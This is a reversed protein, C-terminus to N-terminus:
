PRWPAAPVVQIRQELDDLEAESASPAEDGHDLTPESVSASYTAEDDSPATAPQEDLVADPAPEDQAAPRVHQGSPQDVTQEPTSPHGDQGAPAPEGQPRAETPPGDVQADTVPAAVPASSPSVVRAAVHAAFKSSARATDLDDVGDLDPDPQVREVPAPVPTPAVPVDPPFATSAGVPTPEGRSARSRRSARRPRDGNGHFRATAQPTSGYVYTTGVDKGSVRNFVLGLVRGGATSLTALGDALQHRHVRKSGVVVLAGDTLRSLVAADTVPLLPASDLIVVDYSSALEALLDVM